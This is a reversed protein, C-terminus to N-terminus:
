GKTKDIYHQAQVDWLKRYMGSEDALLEDHSGQQILQGCDFVAIDHCFRCSSLRHSIFVATKGGITKEFTSYVEYEAIPDLAATPEDLIIFPSDRFLARALAIKQAEGGSIQTGDADYSQYLMTDLSKPMKRLRETFGAGDLCAAVHDKDYDPGGAVNAGLELPFLYFDQFVVSFLAHYQSYDYEKINVGDLLIEGETPDYFRCLLKIMTTKGSGNLGVVALRQGPTFKLNLNKLSYEEAGPYRFSVDQFEIVYDRMELPSVSKAGKPLLDPVSWYERMPKLFVTNNVLLGLTMILSAVSTAFATVAGASQVIGGVPVSGDLAGFGALVYFGGGFASLLGLMFGNVRGNEFFYPLWAELDYCSKFISLLSASQDYIRIDKAAKEARLYNIYYAKATNGKVKTATNNELLVQARRQLRLIFLMGLAFLGCVGWVQWSPIDIKAGFPGILLFLSLLMSFFHEVGQRSFMYVNMLGQSGSRSLADMQSLIESVKGGEAYAYDIEIFRESLFMQMKHFARDWSSVAEVERVIFAKAVSLLFAAAVTISVYIIIMQTDRAGSLENLIHASFYLVQMPQVATVLAQILILPLFYPTIKTALKYGYCFLDVFEGFSLKEHSDTM